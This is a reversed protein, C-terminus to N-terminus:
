RGRAGLEARVHEVIADAAAEIEALTVEFGAQDGYWPDDVDLRHEPVDTPAAPDFSRYMRVRDAADVVEADPLGSAGALRRALATMSRIREHCELLLDVIDKGAEGARAAKKGLTIM